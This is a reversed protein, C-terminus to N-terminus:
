KNANFPEIDVNGPVFDGGVQGIPFHNLTFLRDDDPDDSVATLPRSDASNRGQRISITMLKQM